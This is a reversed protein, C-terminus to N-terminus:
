HAFAFDDIGKKKKVGTGESYNMTSEAYRPDDHVSIPQLAFGQLEGLSDGSVGASAPDELRTNVSVAHILDPERTADLLHLARGRELWPGLTNEHLSVQLMVERTVEVDSVKVRLNTTYLVNDRETTGEYVDVQFKRMHGEFMQEIMVTAAAALGKEAVEEPPPIWTAAADEDDSAAEQAAAAAAEEEHTHTEDQKVQEGGSMRFELASGEPNIYLRRRIQSGLTAHSDLHEATIEGHNPLGCASLLKDLVSGVLLVTAEQASVPNYLLVSLRWTSDVSVERVVSVIVPQGNHLRETARHLVRVPAPSGEGEAVKKTEVGPPLALQPMSEERRASSGSMELFANLVAMRYPSNDLFPTVEPDKSSDLIILQFTWNTALDVIAIRLARPAYDDVGILALKRSGLQRVEAFVGLPQVTLKDRLCLVYVSEELELCITVEDCYSKKTVTIHLLPLDTFKVKPNRGEKPDVIARSSSWIKETRHAGDLTRDAFAIRVVPAETQLARDEISAPLLERGPETDKLQEVGAGLAGICGYMLLQEIWEAMRSTVSRELLPYIEEDEFTVKCFEKTEAHWIRVTIAHPFPLESVQIVFPHGGLTRYETYITVPQGTSKSPLTINLQELAMPLYMSVIYRKAIPDTQLRLVVSVNGVRRIDAFLNQLQVDAGNAYGQTELSVMEGGVAILEEKAQSVVVAAAKSSKVPRNQMILTWHWNGTEGKSEVLDLSAVIRDLLRSKHEPQRLLVKELPSLINSMVKDNLRLSYYKNEAEWSAIVRLNYVSAHAGVQEPEDFIRVQLDRNAVRVTAERVIVDMHDQEFQAVDDDDVLSKLSAARGGEPVPGGGDEQQDLRDVVAVEDNARRISLATQGAATTTFCVRVLLAFALSRRETRSTKTLRRRLVKFVETSDLVMSWEECSECAFVQVVFHDYPEPKEIVTGIYYLGDIRLGRRLLTVGRAGSAASLGPLALLSDPASTEVRKRLVTGGDAMSGYAFQWKSPAATHAYQLLQTRLESIASSIPGTPLSSGDNKAITYTRVEADEGSEGPNPVRQVRILLSPPVAQEEAAMLVRGVDRFEVLEACSRLHDTNAADFFRLRIHGCSGSALLDVILDEDDRQVSLVL